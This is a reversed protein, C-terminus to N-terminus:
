RSIGFSFLPSFFSLLKKLGKSTKIYLESHWGFFGPESLCKSDNSMYEQDKQLKERNRELRVMGWVLRWCMANINILLDVIKLKATM